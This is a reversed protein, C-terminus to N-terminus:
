RMGVATSTWGARPERRAPAAFVPAPTERLAQQLTEATLPKLFIGDVKLETCRLVRESTREATVAFLCKSKGLRDPPLLRLAELTDFGEDGPLDIDVVILSYDNLMVSYYTRPGSAVVDVKYGLSELAREAKTQQLPNRMLVMARREGVDVDEPQQSRSEDLLDVTPVQVHKLIQRAQKQLEDCRQRLSPSSSHENLRGSMRILAAVESSVDRRLALLERSMELRATELMINRESLDSVQRKFQDREEAVRQAVADAQSQFDNQLSELALSREAQAFLAQRDLLIFIALFATAGLMWVMWILSTLGVVPSGSLAPLECFLFIISDGLLAGGAACLLLAIDRYLALAVLWAFLHLHTDPQGGSIYWLLNSMLVQSAAVAWRSAVSGPARLVVGMPLACLIGVWVVAASLTDLRAGPWRSAMAMSVSLIVAWQAILLWFLRADAQERQEVLAARFRGQANVVSPDNADPRSWGAM